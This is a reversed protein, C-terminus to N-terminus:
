QMIGSCSDCHGATTTRIDSVVAHMSVQTAKPAEGEHPAYPSIPMLGSLLHTLSWRKKRTGLNCRFCFLVALFYHCASTIRVPRPCVVELTQYLPISCGLLEVSSNLSLQMKGMRSRDLLEGRDSSSVAHVYLEVSM